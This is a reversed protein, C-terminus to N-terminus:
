ENVNEIWLKSGSNLFIIIIIIIIIRFHVTDIHSIKKVYLLKIKTSSRTLKVISMLIFYFFSVPCSKLCLKKKIKKSNTQKKM